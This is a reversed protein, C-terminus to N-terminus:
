GGELLEPMVAKEVRCPDNVMERICISIRRSEWKRGASVGPIDRRQIPRVNIRLQKRECGVDSGM